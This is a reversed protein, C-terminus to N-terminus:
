KSVNVVARVGAIEFRFNYYSVNGSNTIGFANTSPYGYFESRSNMTYYQYSAGEYSGEGTFSTGGMYNYMWVPCSKRDRLCGLTLAEQVTILRAKATREPLTYTNSSCVLSSTCGTYANDKFVTTGMTYTQDDVNTWKETAQELRALAINPGMSADSQDTWKINDVITQQSQMTLTDGNDFMVHFPISELENVKYNIITGTPCSGETKDQYCSTKQCTSEKGTICYNGSNTDTSYTYADVFGSLRINKQVAELRLKAKFARNEGGEKQLTADSIWLKLIYNQTEGVSITGGGISRTVVGSDTTFKENLSLTKVDHNEEEKFLVYKIYYDEFRAQGNGLEMDDLYLNFNSDITGTNKISFRYSNTELGAEDSLPESNELNIVYGDVESFVLQLSGSTLTIDKKNELTIHYWAYSLSVLMIFSCTLVAIIIKNANMKNKKKKMIM